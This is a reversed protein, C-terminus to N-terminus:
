DDVSVFIDQLYLGDFSALREAASQYAAEYDSAEIHFGASLYSWEPSVGDFEVLFRM